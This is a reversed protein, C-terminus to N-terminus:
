AFAVAMGAAVLLLSGLTTLISALANPVTDGFVLLALGCVILGGGIIKRKKM